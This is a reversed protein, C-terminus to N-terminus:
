GANLSGGFTFSEAPIEIPQVGHERAIDVTGDTSGSDVVILELRDAITQSRLIELLRGISAAEDKTRIVVSALPPERSMAAGGREPVAPRDRVGVGVAARGRGRARRGRSGARARRSRRCLEPRDVERARALPRAPLRGP